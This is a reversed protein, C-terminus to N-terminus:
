IRSDRIIAIVNISAGNETGSDDNHMRIRVGTIRTGFAVDGTGGLTLISSFIATQNTARVKVANIALLTGPRTFNVEQDDSSGTTATFGTLHFAEVHWTGFDLIITM